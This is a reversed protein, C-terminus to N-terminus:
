KLYVDYGVMNSFTVSKDLPTHHVVNIMARHAETVDALGIEKQLVIRRWM